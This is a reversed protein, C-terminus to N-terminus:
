QDSVSMLNSCSASSAMPCMALSFRFYLALGVAQSADPLLSSCSSTPVTSVVLLVNPGETETNRQSLDLHKLCQLYVVNDPIARITNHYLILRELWYFETVELPLEVFRNKSLYFGAETAYNALASTTNLEVASSPSISTRIETPHVPTNKGLENEVKGGRLHSNVEELEVKGIGAFVTDGLDYKGGSKPFDKLKRGTLKLEGSLHAEELIRELSRTLRSQIHGSMNSAVMAM